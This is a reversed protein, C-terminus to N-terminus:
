GFINLPMRAGRQLPIGEFGTGSGDPCSDCYRTNSGNM